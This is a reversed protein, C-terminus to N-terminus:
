FIKAIMKSLKNFNTHFRICRIRQICQIQSSVAILTISYYMFAEINLDNILHYGLQHLLEPGGTAFNAPCAIYIKTEPFIEIM